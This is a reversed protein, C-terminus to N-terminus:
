NPEEYGAERRLLRVELELSILQAKIEGLERVMQNREENAVSARRNADDLLTQLVAKDRRESDLLNLLRETADVTAKVSNDSLKVMGVIKKVGLIGGVVAAVLFGVATGIDGSILDEPM